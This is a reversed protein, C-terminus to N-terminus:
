DKEDSAVDMGKMFDSLGAFSGIREKDFQIDAAEEKLDELIKRDQSGDAEIKSLFFDCLREVRRAFAEIEIEKEVSV